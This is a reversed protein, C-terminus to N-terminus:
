IGKTPKAPIVGKNRYRIEGELALFLEDAYINRAAENELLEYYIQVLERIPKRRLDKMYSSAFREADRKYM